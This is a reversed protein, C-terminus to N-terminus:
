NPNTQVGIGAAAAAAAAGVVYFFTISASTFRLLINKFNNDITKCPNVRTIQAVENSQEFRCIEIALLNTM